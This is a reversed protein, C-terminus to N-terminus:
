GPALRHGCRGNAELRQDYIPKASVWRRSIRETSTSLSREPRPSCCGPAAKCWPMFAACSGDSRVRIRVMSAAGPNGSAKLIPKTAGAAIDVHYAITTRGPGPGVFVAQKGDPSLVWTKSARRTGFPSRGGGEIATAVQASAATAECGDDDVALGPRAVSRLMFLGKGQKSFSVPRSPSHLVVQDPDYRRALARGHCM